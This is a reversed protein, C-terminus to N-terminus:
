LSCQCDVLYFCSMLVDGCMYHLAMLVLLLTLSSPYQFISFRQLFYTIIYLLINSNLDGHLSEGTHRRVSVGYKNFIRRSFSNCPKTYHFILRSTIIKNREVFTEYKKCIHRICIYMYTFYKCTCTYVNYAPKAAVHVHVHINSNVFPLIDDRQDYM